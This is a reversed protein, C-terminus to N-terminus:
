NYAYRGDPQVFSEAVARASEMKGAAKLRHYAGRILRYSGRKGAYETGYDTQYNLDNLLSMLMPVSMVSDRKQLEEAVWAVFEYKTNTVGSPAHTKLYKVVSEAEALSKVFAPYEVILGTKLFAAKVQECFYDATQPEFKMRGPHPIHFVQVNKSGVCYHRVGTAGLQQTYELGDFFTDPRMDKWMVVIVHPDLTELFHKAGNFRQGADWVAKWSDFPAGQGQASSAFYEIANGNAWAFSNLINKYNGRRLVSWDKIGHVSALFMLVFGWFSYRTKNSGWWLFDHNEFEDFDAKLNSGPESAEAELFNKVNGWGKTDQGMMVIRMPSEAYKPGFLPLFPKPIKELGGLEQSTVEACFEQILPMYYDHHKKRM